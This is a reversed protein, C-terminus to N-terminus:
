GLCAWSLFSACAERLVSLLSFSRSLQQGLPDSPPLLVLRPFTQHVRTPVSEPTAGMSGRCGALGGQPVVVATVVGPVAVQGSGLLVLGQRQKHGRSKSCSRGVFNQSERKWKLPPQQPWKSRTGLALGWPLLQVPSFGALSGHLLSSGVNPLAPTALATGPVAGDGDQSKSGPTM